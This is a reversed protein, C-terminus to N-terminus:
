APPPAAAETVTESPGVGPEVYIRVTGIGGVARVRDEAADIADVLQKVTLGPDFEVKAAILIEDPGIHQTLTHIVRRVERARELEADIKAELEPSASEGILLSRMEKALVIAIALLV